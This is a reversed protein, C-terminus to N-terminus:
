RGTLVAVNVGAGLRDPYAMMGAVAASGSPSVDLGDRRLRNSAGILSADDVGVAAGNTAHLVDLADQGDLADWNVLPARADTMRVTDPGLTSHTRDPWSALVSNHGASTVGILPVLAGAGRLAEALAVLTTGNGLPVWLSVPPTGGLAFLLELASQGLARRVILAYPGDVNGDAAGLEVALTRSAAVADEYGGPVVVAEAGVTRLRGALAEASRPLVVTAALLRRSAALAVAVGYHGCSGVVIRGWGDGVVAEAVADAARQKHSGAPNDAEDWVGTSAGDVLDVPRLRDAVNM